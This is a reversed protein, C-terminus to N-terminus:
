ARDRVQLHTERGAEARDFRLTAGSREAEFGKETLLPLVDNAEGFTLVDDGSGVLIRDVTSLNASALLAVAGSPIECIVLSIKEEALILNLDMCPIMMVRQWSCEDPLLSSTRTDHRAFFPLRGKLGTGLVANVTEVWAVGNLEHTRALYTCLETNAEVAFVRKVGRHKAVLTSATGLGAGIVLVRDAPRVTDDLQRLLDASYAGSVIRNRIEPIILEADAPSEFPLTVGAPHSLSKFSTPTKRRSDLNIVVSM